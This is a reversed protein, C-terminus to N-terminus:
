APDPELQHAMPIFVIGNVSREPGTQRFGLREYIPVGFRSSNVTVRDLGPKAPRAVSLARTLLERAIGHRQFRGDVFLLSVHDNDRLEIVGAPRDAAMAVLVFHNS